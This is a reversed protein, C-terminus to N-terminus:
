SMLTRRYKSFFQTCTTANDLICADSCFTSPDQNVMCLEKIDEKIVNCDSDSIGYCTALVRQTEIRKKAPRLLEMNTENFSFGLFVLQDAWDVAARIHKLQEGDEVQESFTVISQSIEFLHRKDGCGYRLM